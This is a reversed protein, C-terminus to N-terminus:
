PQFPVDSTKIKTIKLPPSWATLYDGHEVIDYLITTWDKKWKHQPFEKLLYAHMKFCADAFSSAKLTYFGEFGIEPFDALFIYEGKNEALHEEKPDYFMHDGM